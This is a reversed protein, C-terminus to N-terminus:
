AKRLDALAAELQEVRAALEKVANVLVYTLASGNYVRFDDGELGEVRPIRQVMEPFVMEMEQGIVGVGEEGPCTGAKGNYRFRVPRVHLLQDLGAELDRVEEKVRLDSPVAWTNGGETKFASGSVQFVHQDAGALESESGVVIRGNATIGLRVTTGNQRISVPQGTPANIHVQGEAGQRFGYSTNSTRNRHSFYAYSAFAAEGNSCVANGFRVRQSEGTNAALEVELRYTPATAIGIGVNGGTYTVAGANGIPQFAGGSGTALNTWITGNYYQMQGSNFRLTGALTSNSDGLALGRSLRLNSESDVSLGDDSINLFSDMLDSFDEGSPREGDQFEQKLYQRNRESM